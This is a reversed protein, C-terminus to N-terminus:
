RHGKGPLGQALVVLADSDQDQEDEPCDPKM